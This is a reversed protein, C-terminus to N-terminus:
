EGYARFLMKMFKEENIFGWVLHEYGATIKAELAQEVTLGDELAEKTRDRMELYMDLCNQLDQKNALSGHGPIIKTEDDAILLAAEIAKIAGDPTGGSDLDVYPFRDKFFCDGMHIVNAKPFYVFADGDTHANDVHILQISEGNHHLQMSDDFTIVPWAIEPAAPTTGRFPRTQDKNLRERVNNHGVIVAGENGFNQNGGTHDGHWHTNVLYHVNNDSIESIAAKIKDSLEAFQSDIMLTGDDGTFVGINGGWGELMYIQDTVKHTTIQADKINQANLSVGLTFSLVFLIVNSM